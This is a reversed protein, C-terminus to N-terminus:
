KSETIPAAPIAIYLIPGCYENKEFSLTFYPSDRHHQLYCPVVAQFHPGGVLKQCAAMFADTAGLDVMTYASCWRRATYANKGRPQRITDAICRVNQVLEGTRVDVLELIQEQKFQTALSCTAQSKKAAM